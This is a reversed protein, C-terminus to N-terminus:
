SIVEYGFESAEVEAGTYRDGTAPSVDELVQRNTYNDYMQMPDGISYNTGGVRSVVGAQKPGADDKRLRINHQLGFVTRTNILPTHVFTDVSGAADAYNYDVDDNAPVEDLSSWEDRTAQYAEVESLTPTNSAGSVAEIRIWSVFKTPFDIQATGGWGISPLDISTGDSFRARAIGFANGPSFNNDIVKVRNISQSVSYDVQWWQSSSWAIGTGTNGDAASAATGSGSTYTPTGGDPTTIRNTGNSGGSNVGTFGGNSGPGSPYLPSVKVDGLFDNNVTGTTDLIYIDDFFVWSGGDAWALQWMVWNIVGSTGGNRTDLGTATIEPAGNLHVDITGATDHIKVKIEIYVWSDLPMITTGTALTTGNRTIIIRGTANLRFDIHATAGGWGEYLGIYFGGPQYATGHFQMAGGIVIEDRAPISRAMYGQGSNAHHRIGKTGNRGYLVDITSRGNGNWREYKLPIEDITYHDFSDMFLLAM